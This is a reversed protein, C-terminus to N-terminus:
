QLFIKFYLFDWITQFGNEARLYPIHFRSTKSFTHVLMKSTQSSSMQFRQFKSFEFNSIKFFTQFKSVKFKKSVYYRHYIISYNMFEDIILPWHNMALPEPSTAWAELSTAWPWSFKAIPGPAQRVWRWIKRPRSGRAKRRSGHAKLWSGHVM